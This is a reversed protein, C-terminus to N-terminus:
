GNNNTSMKKNNLWPTLEPNIKRMYPKLVINLVFFSIGLLIFVTGFVKGYWSYTPKWVQMEKNKKLNESM